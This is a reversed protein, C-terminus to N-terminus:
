LGKEKLFSTEKSVINEDDISYSKVDAIKLEDILDVLDKYSSSKTPKIIVIMFKGPNNHHLKAIASKNAMITEGIADM